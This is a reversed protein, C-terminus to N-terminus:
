TKGCLKDNASVLQRCWEVRFAQSRAMFSPEQRFKTLDVLRLEAALVTALHTEM